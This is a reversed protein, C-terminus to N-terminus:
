LVPRGVDVLAAIKEANQRDMHSLLRQVYLHVQRGGAM